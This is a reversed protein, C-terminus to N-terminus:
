ELLGSLIFHGAGYGVPVVFLCCLMDFRHDFLGVILLCVELVFFAGEFPASKKNSNIKVVPFM